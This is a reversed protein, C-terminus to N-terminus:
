EAKYAEDRKQLKREELKDRLFQVDEPTELGDILNILYDFQEKKFIVTNLVNSGLEMFAEKFLSPPTLRFMLDIIEQQKEHPIPLEKKEKEPLETLFLYTENVMTKPLPTQIHNRITAIYRVLLFFVFPYSIENVNELLKKKILYDVIKPVYKEFLSINEKRFDKCISMDGLIVDFYMSTNAKIPKSKGKEESKTILGEKLLQNKCTYWAGLEGLGVKKGSRFAKAAEYPTTERGLTFSLLQKKRKM